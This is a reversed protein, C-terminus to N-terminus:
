STREGIRQSPAALRGQALNPHVLRIIQSGLLNRGDPTPEVDALGNEGAIQAHARRAHHTPFVAPANGRAWHQTKELDGIPMGFHQEFDGSTAAAVLCGLAFSLSSSSLSSNSFASPQFRFGSHLPSLQPRRSVFLSSPHIPFAQGGQSGSKRGQHGRRSDTIVL